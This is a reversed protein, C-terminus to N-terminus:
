DDKTHDVIGLQFLARSTLESNLLLQQLEAALVRVNHMALQEQEVKIRLV